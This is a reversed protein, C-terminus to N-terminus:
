RQFKKPVFTIGSTTNTLSSGSSCPQVGLVTKAFEFTGFGIASFAGSWIMRAPAGAYLAQIGETRVLYQISAVLGLQSPITQTVLRTKRNGALYLMHLASEFM